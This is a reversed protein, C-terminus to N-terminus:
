PRTRGYHHARSDYSLGWCTRCAAQQGARTVYVRAVRRGCRPCDLFVRGRRWIANRRSCWAIVHHRDQVPWTVTGRGAPRLGEPSQDLLARYVDEARLVAFCEEVRARRRGRRGGTVWATEPVPTGSTKM